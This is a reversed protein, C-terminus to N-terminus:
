KLEPQFLKAALRPASPGSGGGGGGSQRTRPRATRSRSVSLRAEFSGSSAALLPDLSTSDNLNSEIREIRRRQLCVVLIQTIIFTFVLVGVAPWFGLM